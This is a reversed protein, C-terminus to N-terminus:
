AELGERIKNSLVDMSFPKQLFAKCGQNLLTVAQGNLSYGSSLIVRVEPNVAKLLELTERGGMDPMIMDLIVLGIRSSHERYIALAEKGSQATYVRYGLLRLMESTVRIITEEDDILLVTEVGTRIEVPAPTIRETQGTSAPFYLNFTTGVGKESYVNIM